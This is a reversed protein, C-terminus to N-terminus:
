AVGQPVQARNPWSFGQEERIRLHTQDLLHASVVTTHYQLETHNDKTAKTQIEIKSRDPTPIAASKNWLEQVVRFSYAKFSARLLVIVM